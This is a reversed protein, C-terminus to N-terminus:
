TRAAQVIAVIGERIADPLRDWAEIVAALGDDSHTGETPFHHSVAKTEQCLDKDKSANCFSPLPRMIRLDPTRTAEGTIKLERLFAKNDLTDPCVPTL